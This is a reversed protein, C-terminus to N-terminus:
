QFSEDLESNYNDSTYGNGCNIISKYDLNGDKNDIILYGTCTHGAIELKSVYNNNVLNVLTVTLNDGSIISLSKDKIYLKGANVIQEEYNKVIETYDDNVNDTTSNPTNSPSPKVETIPLTPTDDKSSIGLRIAGIIILILAICFVVIFAIFMSFGWGKNNLKKM